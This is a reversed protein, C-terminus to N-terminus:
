GAATPMCIVPDTGTGHHSNESDAQGVWKTMAAGWHSLPKRGAWELNESASKDLPGCKGDEWRMWMWTWRGLLLVIVVRLTVSWLSKELSGVSACPAM